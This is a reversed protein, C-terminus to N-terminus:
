LAVKIADYQEQTIKKEKLAQKQEATPEKLECTDSIGYFLISAAAKSVKKGVFNGSASSDIVKWDNEQLLAGGRANYVAAQANKTEADADFFFQLEADYSRGLVTHESPSRMVTAAADLTWKSEQRNEDSITLTIADRSVDKSKGKDDVM